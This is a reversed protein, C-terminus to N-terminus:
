GPPPPSPAAPKPALSLVEENYKALIQMLLDLPLAHLAEGSPKGLPAGEEDVFNWDIVVEGLFRIVDQILRADQLELVLRLPPNVRATFEWGAYEGDLAIAKTKIPM